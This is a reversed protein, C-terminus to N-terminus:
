RELRKPPGPFFGNTTAVYEAYGERRKSLSKELLAKGSVRMLLTSMVVPGIITWWTGAAGLAVVYLGWWVMFDGFYNPHRTYRWLGRNMVAGANGPDAKFRALQVDGVTEFFLGVAYIAIGPWTLLSLAAPESPVAAAQVPLSVIWMLLGQLVFVVALSRIWWTSGHRKRMARYRFDEGKGVNRWALYGALRLGWVSVLIALLLTRAEPGDGTVHSVWAVVVFGAGWFIDVISADRLALSLVWLGVMSAAVVVANTTLVEGLSAQALLTVSM